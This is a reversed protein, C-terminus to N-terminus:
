KKRSWYTTDNIFDSNNMRAITKKQFDKISTIEDNDRVLVEIDYSIFKNGTRDIQYVLYSEKVKAGYVEQLVMFEKNKLEILWADFVDTGSEYFEGKEKVTITYINPQGNERITMEKVDADKSDAKWTGLLAKDLPEADSREALPFSSSTTCGAIIISFIFLAPFILRCSKM